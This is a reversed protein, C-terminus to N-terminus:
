QCAAQVVKGLIASIYRLAKIMWEQTSNEHWGSQTSLIIYSQRGEIIVKPCAVKLNHFNQKTVAFKISISLITIPPSWQMQRTHLNMTGNVWIVQFTTLIIIHVINM